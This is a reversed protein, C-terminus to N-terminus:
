TLEEKPAEITETVEIEKSPTLPTACEGCFKQSEPNEHQCKPCTTTM